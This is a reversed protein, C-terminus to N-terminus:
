IVGHMYFWTLGFGTAISLVLFVVELVVDRIEEGKVLAKIVGRHMYLMVLFFGTFVGCLFNAVSKCM